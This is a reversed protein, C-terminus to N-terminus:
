KKNTMGYIYAALYEQYTNAEHEGGASNNKNKHRQWESQTMLGGASLGKEKLYAAAESYTSGTFGTNNNNQYQEVWGVPKGLKGKNWADYAAKAGLGGAAEQSKPGWKGDAELGLSRQINKIQEESLGENDYGPKPEEYTGDDTTGGTKKGAAFEYQQDYQRKAEDFEAQWQSDSVSDRYEGYGMQYGDLYRGYDQEGQYRADETLRDLEAFYASLQDQYRGYDQDERQELLDAQDYLAQGELNYQDLAMGYLEPVRDNLQQLYGQYAQQGATQAFSNGYGGTMAAAQGMVDMSAQQGQLVYQERLQQYLADENLNYSFKERNMISNLIDDIQAQWASQYAGPKNALQQQLLQQAQTVTDSPKYEDYTFAGANQEPMESPTTAAINGSLSGWTKNGAIGDVSLNNKQQYDKVAAQTKDGFIGDEDLNYGNQNLLKQLETVDGGQSGYGVQNYTAM